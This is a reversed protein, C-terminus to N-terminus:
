ETDNHTHTYTLKHTHTTDYIFVRVCIHKLIEFDSHIHIYTCIYMHVCIHTHISICLCFNDQTGQKNSAYTFIYLSMFIYICTIYIYKCM